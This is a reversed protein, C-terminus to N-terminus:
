SPINLAKLKNVDIKINNFRSNYGKQISKCNIIWLDEADKLTEEDDWHQIVEWKFAFFGYERIAKSIVTNYNLSNKSVAHSKHESIRRALTRKTSGVYRENTITNTAIYITCTDNRYFAEPYTRSGKKRINYTPNYGVEYYEIPKPRETGLIYHTNSGRGARDVSEYYQLMTRILTAEIDFSQITKNKKFHRKCIYNGYREVAEVRTITQVM